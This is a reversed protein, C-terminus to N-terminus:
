RFFLKSSVQCLYILHKECRYSATITLTSNQGNNWNNVNLDYKNWIKASLGLHYYKSGDTDTEITVGGSTSVFLWQNKPSSPQPSLTWYNSDAVYSAM